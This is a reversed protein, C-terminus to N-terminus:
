RHPDCPNLARQDRRRERRRQSSQARRGQARLDVRLHYQVFALDDLGPVDHPEAAPADLGERTLIISLNPCTARLEDVHAFLAPTTVVARAGSARLVNSTLEFYRHLDTTTSPAYLSAPVLGAMSTGFFATLFEEADPLILAVLDRRRLGAERLSRAVRLAEIQVDTYSHFVDLPASGALAGGGSRIFTFGAGDRAADALAQPLTRLQNM